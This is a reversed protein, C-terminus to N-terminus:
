EPVDFAPPPLRFLYDGGSLSMGRYYLGPLGPSNWAQRVFLVCNPVQGTSIIL